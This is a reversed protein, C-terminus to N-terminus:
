HSNEWLSAGLRMTTEGLIQMPFSTQELSRTTKENSDDQIFMLM